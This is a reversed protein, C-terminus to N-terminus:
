KAAKQKKLLSECPRGDGDGDLKAVDSYLAVNADFWDKAEQYSAFDKCTKKKGPDIAAVPQAATSGQAASAGVPCAKWLGRGSTLAEKELTTFLTDYRVNPSVKMHRALGQKVLEANVFMDDQARYLYVLERGYRDTPGVDLEVRVKTGKPLLEKTFVSAQPGYCDPPAGAKQKPSVTEPTNVGILRCRGFKALKVTDGDVVDVVEDDSRDAAACSGPLMGVSSAM